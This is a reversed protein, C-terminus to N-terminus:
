PGVGANGNEGAAEPPADDIRVRSGDFLRSRDGSVVRAGAALAGRVYAREADRAVVKLQTRRLIGAGDEAETVVFAEGDTGVAARPLALMGSQPASDIAATVFTGPLLPSGGDGADVAIVAHYARSTADVAAEVAVVRGSWRAEPRAPDRLTVERTPDEAAIAGVPLGLRQFQATDLAVRLELRGASFIRGLEDGAAVVQGRSVRRARVRGAFPARVETRALDREARELAVEAEEIRARADAIQPQRLALPGPKGSEGLIEWDARTQAAKEREIILQQRARALRAAAERRALQHEADDVALLREGAEFRGGATFADAITVVEGPVRAVLAIEDAARLTGHSDLPPPQAAARAAAVRVLPVPPEGAAGAPAAGAEDRNLWLAFAVAAALVLGALGAQVPVRELRRDSV